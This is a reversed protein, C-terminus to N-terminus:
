KKDKSKGFPFLVAVLAGIIIVILLINTAIGSPEGGNVMWGYVRDWQGTAYITAIVVVIVILVLLSMQMWKPLELGKENTSAVFGYLIMFVLLVVASIALIPMLTAIIGTAYSFAVAILAISFSVMADIQRKDDGLIKSRQLIAFILTFILIFPYIGYVAIDSALITEFAM